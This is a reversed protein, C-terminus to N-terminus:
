CHELSICTNCRATAHQLTHCRTAAHQLTNCRTAAHQLSRDLVSQDERAAAAMSNAAEAFDTANGRFMLNTKVFFDFLFILVL